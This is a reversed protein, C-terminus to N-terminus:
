ADDVMLNNPFIFSQLLTIDACVEGKRIITQQFKGFENLLIFIVLELYCVITKLPHIFVPVLNLAPIVCAMEWVEFVERMMDVYAFIVNNRTLRDIDESNQIFDCFNKLLPFAILRIARLSLM